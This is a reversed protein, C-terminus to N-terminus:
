VEEESEAEGLTKEVGKASAWLLALGATKALGLKVLSAGPMEGALILLAAIVGCVCAWKMVTKIANNKM